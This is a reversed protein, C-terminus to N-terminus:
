RIDTSRLSPVATEAVRLAEAAAKAGDVGAADYDRIAKMLDVALASERSAVQQAEDYRDIVAEIQAQEKDRADIAERLYKLAKEAEVKGGDKAAEVRVNDFSKQLAYEAHAKREGRLADQLARITTENMTQAARVSRVAQDHGRLVPEPAVMCGASFPLCAILLVPTAMKKLAAAIATAASTSVAPFTRDHLVSIADRLDQAEADTKPAAGDREMRQVVERFVFDLRSLGPNGVDDPIAKEAARILAIITGEYRRWAASRLFLTKLLFAIIPAAASLLLVSGIGSAFSQLVLDV